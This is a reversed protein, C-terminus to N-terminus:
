DDPYLGHQTASWCANAMATSRVENLHPAAIGANRFIGMTTALVSALCSCSRAQRAILGAADTLPETM